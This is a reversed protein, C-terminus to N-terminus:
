LRLKWATGIVKTSSSRSFNDGQYLYYLDFSFKRTLAKNFGASIRNRSFRGSASDYFPEETFFLKMGPVFKEPLKKEITISPRYRWTNRGPRFRYEVRSRHSMGFGRVEKRVQAMLSYRYEYRFRGLANRDSLFTIFPLVSIHDTLKKHLGVSFRSNDVNTLRRGFQVTTVTVLDLSKSIPVTIQLDNWSQIEPKDAVQGLATGIHLSLQLFTISFLLLKNRM